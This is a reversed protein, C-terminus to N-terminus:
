EEKFLGFREFAYEEREFLNVGDKWKHAMLFTAPGTFTPKEQPLHFPGLLNRNSSCITIDIDNDGIVAYNSIDVRDDFYGKQIPKGNVKVNALCYVGELKLVVNQDTLKLKKNLTMKGAFFPYGDIVNNSIIDKKKGIYFDNGVFYNKVKGKEIPSRSYVGFDGQLYACEITTDYVLKNRLSEDVNEGYLAYYVNDQEYFHIKVIIENKGKIVHSSVDAKYTKRDFDSLGNLEFSAGNITCSLNRMDECVFFLKNPIVEVDFEYKLYIEGDYRERLLNELIVSYKTKKSYNIGDKSYCIKDLTMYNQDCNIIEFEGDLIIEKKGTQNEIKNKSPILVFQDGVNFHVKKDIKKTSLNEVDLLIFSDFDGKFTLDYEKDKSLNTAYIFKAGDIERFTSQIETDREIVSYVQSNVIQEIDCNTKISYTFKQGELYTPEEGMFLVKGGNAYFEELLNCSTKDMTYTTPFVVYDYSENGVILKSGEVKGHRALINEDLIHYPINLKSLENTVEAYSIDPDLTQKKFYERKYEFYVSRNPCFVGVNVIEHSEGILYGMKACYDNFGKFDERVWPSVWSFHPPYDRKRQGHESYPLLHQCVLNVGNVLHASLLTRLQRPTIEWGCGAFCETLIQKKGLQRAVSSVQRPVRSPHVNDALMDVGPIHEFEYFPMVGGCCVTQFELDAEEVYHGTLMVGNDECWTYVQEAFSRLMMEQMAKWYRYRFERYGDKEVFMLGLKDLINEGYVKEFYLPLMRTYSHAPRYYQPEDTFFGCLSNFKDGLRKKYEEHTKDIFKKVVQPNLVDATSISTHEFVNLVNDHDCEKVRVIKDGSIDYSVLANKDLEGITYSLYKDCNEPDKLLEGGVFGSPWGNEDYAWSQMGINEGEDVCAEICNFWDDGLYETTLGGRAHMFYGGFGNEKMWRIQRVLEETELKDNWSWFPIPRYADIDKSSLKEKLRKHM